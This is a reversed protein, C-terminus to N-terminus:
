KVIRFCRLGLLRHVGNMRSVTGNCRRIKNQCIRRHFFTKERQIKKNKCESCNSHQLVSSRHLTDDSHIRFIFRQVRLSVIPSVFFNLCAVSRKAPIEVEFNNSKDDSRVKPTQEMPTEDISVTMCYAFSWICARMAQIQLKYRLSLKLTRTRAIARPKTWAGREVTLEVPPNRVHAISQSFSDDYRAITALGRIKTAVRAYM